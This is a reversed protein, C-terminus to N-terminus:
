ALGQEGNEAIWSRAAEVAEFGMDCINNALFIMGDIRGAKLWALGLEDKIAAAFTALETGETLPRAGAWLQVPDDDDTIIVSPLNSGTNEM